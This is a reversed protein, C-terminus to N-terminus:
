FSFSFLLTRYNYASNYNYFDVILWDVLAEVMTLDPDEVSGKGATDLM